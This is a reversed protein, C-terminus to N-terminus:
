KRYKDHLGLGQELLTLSKELRRQKTVDQKASEIHEVYERQHSPPLSEFTKRAAANNKLAENLLESSDYKKDRQNFGEVQEGSENKEIAELVLGRLGEEDLDEISSVNYKRMSKTTEATAELLNKPDNFLAGKHFWMAAFNKFAVMSMMIGKYEFTPAGWKITEEVQPATELVVKRVRTLIPHAFNSELRALYEDTNKPKAM